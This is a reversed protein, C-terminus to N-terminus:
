DSPGLTSTWVTLYTCPEYRSLQSKVIPTEV